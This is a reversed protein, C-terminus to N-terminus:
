LNDHEEYEDYPVAFETPCFGLTNPEAHDLDGGLDKCDPLSMIRTQNYKSSYLAYHKDDQAFPHFTKFFSPYNRVYEGIKMEDMFIEVLTYSWHSESTHKETRHKQHKVTYKKHLEENFIM